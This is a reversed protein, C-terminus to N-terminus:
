YIVIKTISFLVMVSTGVHLVFYKGHCCGRIKNGAILDLSTYYKAETHVEIVYLTSLLIAEDRSSLYKGTICLVIDYLESCEISGRIIEVGM